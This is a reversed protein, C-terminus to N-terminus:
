GPKLRRWWALRLQLALRTALRFPKARAGRGSEEWARVMFDLYARGVQDLTPVQIRQRYGELDAVVRELLAPIEEPHDFLEGGQGVLGSQGGDRKAVVPLGCHLAEIVSNPCSERTAASIFLDHQRLATALEASSMPPLHRIREFTLPANGIFTMDYRDFDLNRDLWRYTEFGKRWNSSWSAALLRPKREPACPARGIAHFLNPDPANPLVQVAAPLRLGRELARDRSWTSQIVTGDCVWRSLAYGMRDLHVDVPQDRGLCMPGDLRLIVVPAPRRQKLRYLPLFFQLISPQDSNILLIDAQEANEEYCGQRELFVRLAKLFQNGGGWPGDRFRFLIHIRPVVPDQSM